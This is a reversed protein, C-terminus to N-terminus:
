QQPPFQQPPQGYTPYGQPPVQQYGQQPMQQQPYVPQYVPVQVPVYVPTAQPRPVTPRVAVKITPHTLWHATMFVWFPRFIIMLIKVIAAIRSFLVYAVEKGDSYSGLSRWTSMGTFTSYLILCTAIVAILGPVLFLAKPAQKICTLVIMCIWVFTFSYLAIMSIISINTLKNIFGSFSGSNIIYNEWELLLFVSFGAILVGINDRSATGILLLIYGGLYVFFVVWFIVMVSPINSAADTQFLRALFNLLHVLIYVIMEFILFVKAGTAARPRETYTIQQEM